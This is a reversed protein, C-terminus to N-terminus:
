QQMYYGSLMRDMCVTYLRTAVWDKGTEIRGHEGACGCQLTGSM